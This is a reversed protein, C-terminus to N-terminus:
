HCREGITPSALWKTSATTDPDTESLDLPKVPILNRSRQHSDRGTANPKLM